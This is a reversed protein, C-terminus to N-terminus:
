DYKRLRTVPTRREQQEAELREVLEWIGCGTLGRPGCKLAQERAARVRAAEQTEYLNQTTRTTGHRDCVVSVSILEHLEIM